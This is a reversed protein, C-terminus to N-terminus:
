ARRRLNDNAQPPEQYQKPPISTNANSSNRASTSTTATNSPVPATRQLWITFWLLMLGFLALLTGSSQETATKSLAFIIVGLVLVLIGVVISLRRLIKGINIYM